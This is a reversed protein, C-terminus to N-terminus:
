IGEERSGPLAKNEFAPKPPAAGVEALHRDFRRQCEIISHSHRFSEIPTTWGCNCTMTCTQDEGSGDYAFTTTHGAVSAGTSLLQGM